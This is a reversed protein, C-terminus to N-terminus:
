VPLSEEVLQVKKWAGSRFRGYFALALLVLYAMLWAMAAMERGGLYRLTLWSGPLFVGWALIGRAWMAFSTDGAARLAESLTIGAADFVQWLASMLLMQVGVAMFSADAGGPIFPRLLASPWALYALAVLGMWAGSCLFGMRVLAGVEDKRGAGISQGVLIATASGLGFAPMFSMANLQLVSMMAALSSTGLGAVVINIYAIFAFFEFSWNLGSPLGFRLMRWFEAARLRAKPLGRGQRLFAIFLGAFALSTAAVSALASGRVGMAPFGLRGDILAWNLAVNVLMAVVSAKMVIATNGLGGYYNGLAEMGVAVGTSLLRMGLYALMLSEVEPAYGFKGLAWPLGPLLLLMLAQTGLAMILGYWAYNRAAAAQGKGMLQSSFSSIIFAVGMPFIFLSYSNMAGATVAALSPAGLHAVLLADSLGVVVQTSRSIIIPWALKFLGALGHKPLPTMPAIYCAGASSPKRKPGKDKKISFEGTAAMEGELGLM